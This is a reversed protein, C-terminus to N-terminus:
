FSLRATSLLSTFPTYFVYVYLQLQKKYHILLLVYILLLKMYIYTCYIPLLAEDRLLCCSAIM